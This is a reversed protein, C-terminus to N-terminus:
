YPREAWRGSKTWQYKRAIRDAQEGDHYLDFREGNDIHKEVVRIIGSWHTYRYSFEDLIEGTNHDILMYKHMNNYHPSITEDYPDDPKRWSTLRWEGLRNCRITVRDQNIVLWLFQSIVMDGDDGCYVFFRDGKAAKSLATMNFDNYRGYFEDTVRGTEADVIEIYKVWEDGFRPNEMTGRHQTIGNRKINFTNEGTFCCCNLEYIENDQYELSFAPTTSTTLM